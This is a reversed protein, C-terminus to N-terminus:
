SLFYMPNEPRHRRRVEFHLFPATARGTSGVSGIIEGQRVTQQPVVAVAELHAYVTALEDAHEVIVTKGFGRLNEDLFVIRGARAARVQVGAPAQIDIGKNPGHPTPAKYYALVRGRVPWIFEDGEPGDAPSPHPSAGIPSVSGIPLTDGIPADGRRAGPIFLQQGVEVRRADALRNAAVLAELEVGYTKAIRWVTQGREVRHYIGSVQPPAALPAAVGGGAEFYPACGM